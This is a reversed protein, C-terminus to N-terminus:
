DSNANARGKLQIMAGEKVFGGPNFVVISDTTLGDLIEVEDTLEKGTAVVQKKLKGDSYIYVYEDNNEDQRIAEYPVTILNYNNGGTIEIKATFGPKLREGPGDVTIEVDVVTDQTSGSLAKHATPAISVVKGTYISGGFGVGRIRASDGLNIKSIDSESVLALVKYHRNDIVTFATTAASAPAGPQINVESIIGSIPSSLAQAGDGGVVSVTGGGLAGNQGLAAAIASYDAGGSFAASLGYQAALSVWDVPQGSDRANQSFSDLVGTASNALARTKEADLTALTEGAEVMDGVGVLVASPVVSSGLVIQRTDDSQVTGACNVVNEYVSKNPTIYYVSPIASELMRPIVALGVAILVFILMLLLKKM